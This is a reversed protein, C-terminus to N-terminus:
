ELLQLRYFRQPGGPKDIFRAVGNTTALSQRELWTRLDTSVQLSYDRGTIVEFDLAWGGQAAPKPVRLRTPIVPLQRVTYGKNRLLRVVGEEGAFHGAGAIVMTVQGAVALYRELAPVWRHNREDFLREYFIPNDARSEELAAAMRYTNGTKWYSILENLDGLGSSRNLLAQRLIEEQDAESLGALIDVQFEATELGEIRMRRRVAENYFYFDVGLNARFEAADTSGDTLTLAIFWPRLSDGVTAGTERRYSELLGYTEASVHDYIFEGRPYTAKADLYQMFRSSSFDSLRVEFVVRSSRSFAEEFLYPLPHDSERLAHVSGMLYVTSNGNKIEWLFHQGSAEQARLAWTQLGLVLILLRFGKVITNM